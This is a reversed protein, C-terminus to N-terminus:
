SVGGEGRALLRGAQICLLAVATVHEPRERETVDEVVEVAVDEGDEDLRDLRLEADGVRPHAEQDPRRERHEVGPEAHRDRAEGIAAHPAIQLAKV